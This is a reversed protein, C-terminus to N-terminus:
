GRPQPRSGGRRTSGRGPGRGKPRKTEDALLRCALQWIEVPELGLEEAYAEVFTDLVQGTRGQEFKRVADEGRHAAAGVRWQEVGREERLMRAARGLHEILQGGLIPRIPMRGTVPRVSGPNLVGSNGSRAVQTSM